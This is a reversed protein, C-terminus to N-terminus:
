LRRLGSLVREMLGFDPVDGDAAATAHVDLLGREAMDGLLVKAVGLPIRLLAAVEAVSRPRECVALVDQYEAKMPGFYLEEGLSVMTEIELQFDSSTRGGTWSYPRVIAAAEQPEESAAAVPGPLIITQAEPQSRRKRGRRRGSDLTFGNLLDVFTQESDNM